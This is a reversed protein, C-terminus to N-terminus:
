DWYNLDLTKCFKDWVGNMDNTKNDEETKKKQKMEELKKMANEKEKKLTALKTSEAM